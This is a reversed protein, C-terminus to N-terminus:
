IEDSAEAAAEEPEPKPPNAVQEQEPNVVLVGANVLIKRSPSYIFAQQTTRYVVLLDGNQANKFFPEKAQATDIPGVIPTEGEPLIIHRSMAEVTKRVQAEPDRLERNERYLSHAFASVGLFALFFFWSWFRRRPGKPTGAPPTSPAKAPAPATTETAVKTENDTQKKARAM